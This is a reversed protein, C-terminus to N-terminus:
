EPVCAAREEAQHQCDPHGDVGEVGREGPPAEQLVDQGLCSRPGGAKNVYHSWASSPNAALRDADASFLDPLLKFAVDRNLTTDVAELGCGDRGRRDERGLPLHLLTRGPTIQM